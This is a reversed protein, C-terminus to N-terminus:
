DGSDPGVLSKIQEALRDRLDDPETWALHQFNRIDFQLESLQDERCTFIVPKGLGHAFGVEYYVSGRVGADGHTFDAVVFDSQRIEVQIQEDIRDLTPVADIRVAEFGAEEIAPKLSQDYLDQVEPDFWMAVFARGTTAPTAMQDIHREGPITLTVDMRTFTESLEIFDLNALHTMLTSVETENVSDTIVKLTPDSRSYSLEEGVFTTEGRIRRLLRDLRQETELPSASEAQELMKSTIASPRQGRQEADLVLTALRARVRPQLHGLKALVSPGVDFDGKLPSDENMRVYVQRNPRTRAHVTADNQTFVTIPKGSM